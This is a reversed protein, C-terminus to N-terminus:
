KKVKTEYKLIETGKNYYNVDKKDINLTESILRIVETECYGGQCLGSGARARKKIGKVSDGGILRNIHALVDGETIKECKCILRGYRADQKFAEAKEISTMDHFMKIPTRLPNFDAKKKLHKDKNIVENVLYEAIAPAATLGPSDIGAVHYFNKVEHSEKIYFDHYDSTARIGTFTRIIQEFPINKALRTAESKVYNLGQASNSTDDLSDQFESNPGVLINGHVQPVLLVGKGKSSPVPYLTHKIFGKVRRDLVYYEGRRPTIKFDPESEIMEAIKQTFAGAANIVHKAKIIEEHNITVEFGDNVKIINTVSASKKYKAGNMMANELSAIAVEWPYTIKTSPLSLVKTVTDHLNPEEKLAEEKTLYFVEKVGNNKARQYLTELTKEEEENHAVVYAGTRLLPIGLEQELQNYLTNGRVCLKAKLTGEEPDHGSHVIASNAITAHNGIDNEKELLMVSVDYQSLTRALSTGVIGGGIILYDIM